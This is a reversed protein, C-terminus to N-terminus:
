DIQCKPLGWALDCGLTNPILTGFRQNLRNSVQTAGLAFGCGLTNPNLTGFQQNVGNSVQSTGM